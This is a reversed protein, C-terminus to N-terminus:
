EGYEIVARAAKLECTRYHYGSPSHGCVRCRGDKTDPLREILGKLASRLRDNRTKLIEITGDMPYM